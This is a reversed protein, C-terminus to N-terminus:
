EARGELYKIIANAILRHGTENLHGDGPATNSFGYPLQKSQEYHEEYTEGMDIFDIENEFCASKFYELTQCRPFSVEGNSSIRPGPHYIILIDGHFKSRILAMANNVAAYYKDSDFLYESNTQNVQKATDIKNSILSILPFYEKLANKLKSSLTLADFRQEANLIEEVDFPETAWNLEEISIDTNSIEITVTEANPFELLATEFHRVIAAFMHGDCAINYTSLKNEDTAIADNVLVSYKKNTNVEKGVSHSAGMMLVYSDNLEKEPNAYGFKDIKTIGYGETGHVLYKRPARVARSTGTPTEIWGVQREYAFCLTNVILFGIVLAFIWLVVKHVIGRNKMM